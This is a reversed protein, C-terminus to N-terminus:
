FDYAFRVALVSYSEGGEPDVQMHNLMLRTQRDLYWNAALDMSSGAVGAVDSMDYEGYRAAVEYAGKEIGSAREFKGSSAKYSRFQDGLFYSTQLSTASGEGETADAMAHELMLNLPGDTYAFELGTVDVDTLTQAFTATEHSGPYSRFNKEGDRSNWAVGLHLLQKGKDSMWPRYVFRAALSTNEAGTADTDEGYSDADYFYGLQWTSSESSDSVMFGQNRAPAFGAVLSREMFTIFRSSTLEDLGMPEKFHGVTMTVPLLDKLKLYADAFKAQSSNSAFDIELKGLTSPSLSMAVGIRARRFEVGEDTGGGDSLTFDTQLRGFVTTTREFPEQTPTTWALAPAQLTAQALFLILIM